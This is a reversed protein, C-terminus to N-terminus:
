PAPQVITLAPVRRTLVGQQIRLPQGVMKAKAPAPNTEISLRMHRTSLDSMGAAGYICAAQLYLRASVAGSALAKSIWDLAQTVEGVRYLAWALDGETAYNSRLAIDKRAWEVAEEGRGALECCLDVLLHYYHVEGRSASELYHELARTKWPLASAHEGSLSYLDGLAHEWEPRPSAEYLRTYGAIAEAFRGQTGALEAMREAVLWYGPYAREAREYHILAQQHRGRQFNMSGRQLELWAFSYMQKATLEDEASVYLRDAEDVDGMAYTLHALRALGDWTTEEALALQIEARAEDYRGAQLLVDSHVLRGQTCTRLSADMGLCLEADAFRHLKLAIYAKLLWLDAHRSASGIAGDIVEDLVKLGTLDGMLSARQFRRYLLRTERESGPSLAAAAAGEARVLEDIEGEIRQLDAQYATM